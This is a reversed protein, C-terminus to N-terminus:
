FPWLEEDRETALYSHHTHHAARYLSLSMFSLVGLLLGVADNLRPSPCLSGHAAEHFAILHGHMLHALVLVLPVVVWWANVTLFWLVIVRAQYNSVLAM